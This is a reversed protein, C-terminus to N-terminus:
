NGQEDHWRGYRISIACSGTNLMTRVQAMFGQIIRHFPVGKFHLPKGTSKGTGAEGTCLQRFNEATQLACGPLQHVRTLWSRSSVSADYLLM